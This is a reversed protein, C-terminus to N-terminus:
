KSQSCLKGLVSPQRKLRHLYRLTIPVAISALIQLLPISEFVLLTIIRFPSSGPAARHLLLGLFSMQIAVPM